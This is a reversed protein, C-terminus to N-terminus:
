FCITESDSKKYQQNADSTVFCRLIIKNARDIIDTDLSSLYIQTTKESTHGMGESIVSLPINKQRAVNAWSHRAVYMTLPIPLGIKRGLVKLARNINHSKKVYQQRDDEESSTIIPLLYISSPNDHNAVIREMCNEWGIFLTQGTKRRRYKLVGQSLDSKRLYAMDVFSMGRTYFSFLFMDRALALAPRNELNMAALRSITSIDVSRKMTKAIGTYVYKFPYKQSTIGQKVARNYTARLIRMYFSTTNSSLGAAKLSAEYASIMEDNISSILVDRGNRFRMFSSLASSYTESTRTKGLNRLQVITREMFPSLYGNRVSKKKAKKPKM